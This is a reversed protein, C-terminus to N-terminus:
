HSCGTISCSNASIAEEDSSLEEMAARLVKIFVAPEQAGSIYRNGKIVFLPIGTGLGNVAAEDSLIAAEASDFGVLDTAGM